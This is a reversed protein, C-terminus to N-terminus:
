RPLITRKVELWAGRRAQREELAEETVEVSLSRGNPFSGIEPYNRTDGHEADDGVGPLEPRLELDVAPRGRDGACRGRGSCGRPRRWARVGRVSEHRHALGQPVTSPAM